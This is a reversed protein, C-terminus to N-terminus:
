LLLYVRHFIDKREQNGAGIESVVPMGPTQNTSKDTKRERISVEARYVCEAESNCLNNIQLPDQPHRYKVFCTMHSLMDGSEGCLPCNISANGNRHNTALGIMGLSGKIAIRAM